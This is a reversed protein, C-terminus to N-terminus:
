SARKVLASSILREGAWASTQASPSFKAPLFALVFVKVHCKSQCAARLRTM